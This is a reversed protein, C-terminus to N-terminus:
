VSSTKLFLGVGLGPFMRLVHMREDELVWQPISQLQAVYLLTSIAFVNYALTAYQMGGGVPAWRAVREKFKALPKVWSLTGKGPGIVFGLYTGKDDVCLSGWNPICMPNQERVDRVGNPWLPICITKAVNFALNSIQEFERFINELIPSQEWWDRLVIAIDDAFANCSCDKLKHTIMRLLIDVCVAFLLPSLPCGQKVGGKSDFGPFDQGHM